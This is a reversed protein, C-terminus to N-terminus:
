KNPFSHTHIVGSIDFSFYAIQLFFNCLRDFIYLIKVSHFCKLIVLM